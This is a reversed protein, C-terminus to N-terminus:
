SKVPEDVMMNEEPNPQTQEVALAAEVLQNFQEGLSTM